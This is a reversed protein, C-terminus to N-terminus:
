YGFDVRRNSAYAAANKASNVPNKDGLSVTSIQGAPVGYGELARRVADARKAGLALNYGGAGREDANGQLTVRLSPNSRLYNAQAQVVSQYEPKIVDSDFDFYVSSAVGSPPAPQTVPPPAYAVRPQAYQVPYGQYRVVPYAPYVPRGYATYGYPAAVYCGSLTLTLVGLAGCHLLNFHMRM